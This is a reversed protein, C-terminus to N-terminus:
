LMWCCIVNDVVKHTLHFKKTADHIMRDINKANIKEKAYSIQSHSIDLAYVYQAINSM